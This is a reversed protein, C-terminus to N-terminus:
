VVAGSPNTARKLVMITKSVFDDVLVVSNLFNTGLLNIGRTRDDGGKNNQLELEVQVGEIEVDPNGSAQFDYIVLGVM